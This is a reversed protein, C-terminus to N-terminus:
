ENNEEQIPEDEIEPAPYPVVKSLVGNIETGGLLMAVKANTIDVRVMSHGEAHNPIPDIYAIGMETKNAEEGVFIRVQRV